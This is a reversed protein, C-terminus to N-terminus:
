PLVYNKQKIPRLWACRDQIIDIALFYPNWQRLWEFFMTESEYTGDAHLILSHNRYGLSAESISGNTSKSIYYVGNEMYCDKALSLRKNMELMFLHRSIKNTVFNIQRRLIRRLEGESQEYERFLNYFMYERGYYHSAFENEILYIQYTRM